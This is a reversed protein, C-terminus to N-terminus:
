HTSTDDFANLVSYISNRPYGSNLYKKFMRYKGVETASSTRM